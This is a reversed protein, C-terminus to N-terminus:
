LSSAARHRGARTSLLGPDPSVGVRPLDLRDADWCCGVTPDDTTEGAAHQECAWLLLDLREGALGSLADALLAARSGHEPDDGDTARMADHFLGFLSVVERDAGPTEAALVLGYRTVRRWHALGHLPSRHCLSVRAVADVLAQPWSRGAANAWRPREADQLYGPRLYGDPEPEGAVAWWRAWLEDPLTGAPCVLELRDASLPDHVLLSQAHRARTEHRILNVIESRLQSREAGTSQAWVFIRYAIRDLLTSFDPDSFCDLGSLDARWLDFDTTRGSWLSEAPYNPADPHARRLAAMFPTGYRAVPEVDRWLYVGDWFPDGAWERKWAPLAPLLGKRGIRERHSRHSLHWGHSAAVPRRAPVRDPLVGAYERVADAPATRTRRV